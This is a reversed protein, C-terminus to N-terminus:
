GEPLMWLRWELVTPVASVIRVRRPRFFIRYFMTELGLLFGFLEFLPTDYPLDGLFIPNIDIRNNAQCDLIVGKGALLYAIRVHNAYKRPWISRDESVWLSSAIMAWPIIM